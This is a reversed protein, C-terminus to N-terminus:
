CDLVKALIDSHFQSNRDLCKEQIRKMVLIFPPYDEAKLAKRVRKAIKM